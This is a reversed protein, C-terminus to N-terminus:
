DRLHEREKRGLKEILQRIRVQQQQIQATQLFLPPERAKWSSLSSSPWSTWSAGFHYFPKQSPLNKLTREQKSPLFLSKKEKITIMEHIKIHQHVTFYTFITFNHIFIHCPSWYCLLNTININDAKHTGKKNMRHVQIHQCKM